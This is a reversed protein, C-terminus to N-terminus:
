VSARSERAWRQRVWGIGMTVVVLIFVVLLGSEGTWLRANEGQAALDFGGNITANWAAHAVICPWISGTDLRMWALLYGYAPIAIMLGLASLLLSPGAAYGATFVPILHWVAWILGSLLIPYPVNAQILRPLLYGRWGIEEGAATPLLVLTGLTATLALMLILHVIPSTTPPIFPMSPPDFQVLGTLFAISYAISGVLLPVALGLYIASRTQRGGFKFSVDAFGERQVLRTIVAAITPSLMIPISAGLPLNRAEAMAYFWYGFISLPLLLLGFITLGRRAQQVNVSSDPSSALTSLEM